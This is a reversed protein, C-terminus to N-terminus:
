NGGNRSAAARKCSADRHKEWLTAYFARRGDIKLIKGCVCQVRHRSFAIVFQDNQLKAMRAAMEQKEKKTM